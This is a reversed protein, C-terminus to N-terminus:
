NITLTNPATMEIWYANGETMETLSPPPGGPIYNSWTQTAGDYYWVVVVDGIIGALVDGITSPSPTEPLSILNWDTVLDINYPYAPESGGIILTTPNTIEVWYGKGETMETLSPPPGSPIYNSWTQTTGDYYWVVVVEGIIDALVDGIDTSTPTVPLGIFNWGSVLDISVGLIAYGIPLIDGQLVDLLNQATLEDIGQTFWIEYVGSNYVVSPNGVSAWPSSNAGVLAKPDEVTWTTGDGSTAYGIFTSTDALLAKINDMNANNDILDVFNTMFPGLDGPDYSAWLDSIDPVLLLIEDLLAGLSVSTLNTSGHTYWMEYSSGRKIVSPTAVSDWAGGSSGALVESNVVTWIIGDDSTAYGIVSGTGDLIDWLEVVGFGALDALITDLDTATVDTKSQTYWMEYSGDTKIVSPAGVSDQLGGSSGALVGLDPAAWAIGDDSTTYGVETRAADILALIAAKRATADGGLDALIDGLEIETLDTTTHTYWMEYSGDTKIVSPAGVSDWAGGSSGALVEPNQVTWTIGDSSTAYGIVTATDTLLTYLANADIVSLDDLLADLDLNALNTVIDDTLIAALSSAIDSISLATKGHTYWMEYTTGDKIVCAEAVFLEGDLSVKGQKTWPVAAQVLMVLSATLILALSFVFVALAAQKRICKVSVTGRNQNPLFVSM